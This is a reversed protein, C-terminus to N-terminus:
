GQFSGQGWRAFTFRGLAEGCEAVHAEGIEGTSMGLAALRKLRRMDASCLMKNQIGLRRVRNYISIVTRNLQVACYPWDGRHDRLFQDEKATWHRILGLKRIKVYLSPVGRHLCRALTAIRVKGHHVRLFLSDADTWPTRNKHKSWSAM